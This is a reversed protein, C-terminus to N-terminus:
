QGLRGNCGMKQFSNKTNQYHRNRVIQSNSKMIFILSLIKRNNKQVINVVKIASTQPIHCPLKLLSFFKINLQSVMAIGVLSM